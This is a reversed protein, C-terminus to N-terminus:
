INLNTLSGNGNKHMAHICDLVTVVVDVIQNRKMDKAKDYSEILMPVVELLPAAMQEM